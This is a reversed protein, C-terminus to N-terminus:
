EVSYIGRSAAARQRMSGASDLMMVDDNTRHVKSNRDRDGTMNRM